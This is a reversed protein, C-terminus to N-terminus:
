QLKTTLRHITTRTRILATSQLAVVELRKDSSDIVQIQEPQLLFATLATYFTLRAPDQYLIYAVNM